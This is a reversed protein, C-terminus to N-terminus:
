ATARTSLSGPTGPSPPLPWRATGRRPLYHAVLLRRFLNHGRMPDNGQWLVFLMRPTRISEGPHLKLHTLEQGAQVNLEGSAARRVDM